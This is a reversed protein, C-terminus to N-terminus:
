SADGQNAAIARELTEPEDSGLLFQSGDRLKVLVARRGGVNYLWGRPTYHIGWGNLATTRTIETHAIASLPVSKKAIGPGFFWALRGAEIQVTLSSFVVASIMLVVGAALLTLRPGAATSASKRALTLVFTAIGAAGFLIAIPLSRQTHAYLNSEKRSPHARAAGLQARSHIVAPGSGALIV